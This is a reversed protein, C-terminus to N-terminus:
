INNVGSNYVNAKSTHLRASIANTEYVTDHGKDTDPAHKAM